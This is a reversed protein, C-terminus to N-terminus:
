NGGFTSIRGNQQASFRTGGAALLLVFMSAIVTPWVYRYDQSGTMAVLSGANLLSPVFILGAAKGFRNMLLVTGFVGLLLYIGARFFYAVHDWARITASNVKKMAYPFKSDMKLGLEHTMPMDFITQPSFTMYEQPNATIRWVLSALCVQHRLFVIPNDLISRLALRNLADANEALFPYSISHSWFLPVVSGCQYSSRWEDAPLTANLLEQDGPSFEVGANQMAGLAHLAYIAKYHPGITGANLASLVITKLAIFALLQVLMVVGLRIRSRRDRAFWVLLAVFPLVILIGNHRVGLILIGIVALALATARSVHMQLRVIRAAVVSILLVGIGFPVDKWLTSSLLFNPPYLPFLFAALIVWRERVGWARAESLAFGGAISLCLAQAMVVYQPHPLVRYVLGYLLTSFIPHSDNYRGTAMENWQTISDPSMQAPWYVLLSVLYILFGPAAYILVRKLKLDPNPSVERGDAGRGLVWGLVWFLAFGGLYAVVANRVSRAVDVHSGPLEDMRLSLPGGSTAYLDFRQHEGGSYVDVMGSYPHRLFMLNSGAVFPIDVELTGPQERFSLLSGERIEWGKGPRVGNALLIDSSDKMIWVENSASAPNKDGTAVIKIGGSVTFVPRVPLMLLFLAAFIAAFACLRRSTVM